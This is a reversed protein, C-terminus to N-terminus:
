PNHNAPNKGLNETYAYTMAGEPSAAGYFNTILVVELILAGTGTM